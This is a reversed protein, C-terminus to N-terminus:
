CLCEIFLREGSYPPNLIHVSWDRRLEQKYGLEALKSEDNVQTSM